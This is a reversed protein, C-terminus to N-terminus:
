VKRNIVLDARFGEDFTLTGYRVQLPQQRGVQFDRNRLEHELIREYVSELLGPGLAKHIKFAADIVETAISNETLHLDDM